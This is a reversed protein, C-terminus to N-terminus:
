KGEYLVTYGLQRENEIVDNITLENKIYQNYRTKLDTTNKNESSITYNVLRNKSFCM